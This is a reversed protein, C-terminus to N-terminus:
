PAPPPGCVQVLSQEVEEGATFAVQAPHSRGVVRMTALDVVVRETAQGCPPAEWPDEITLGLPWPRVNVYLYRSM